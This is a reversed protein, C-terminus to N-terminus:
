DTTDKNRDQPEPTKSMNRGDRRAMDHHRRPARSWRSQRLAPWFGFLGLLAAATAAIVAGVVIAIIAESIDARTAAGGCLHVVGACVAGAAALGAMTWLAWASGRVLKPREAGVPAALLACCLSGAILFGTATYLVQM